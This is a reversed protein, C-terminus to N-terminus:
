VSLGSGTMQGPGRVFSGAPFTIARGGFGAVDYLGVLAVGRDFGEGSLMVDGGFVYARSIAVL